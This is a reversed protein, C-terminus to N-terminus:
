VQCYIQRFVQIYEVATRRSVHIMDMIDEPRLSYAVNGMDFILNPNKEKARKFANLAVTSNNLDYFINWWVILLKQLVKSRVSRLIAKNFEVNDTIKHSM